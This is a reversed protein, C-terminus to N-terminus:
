TGYLLNGFYLIIFTNAAKFIVGFVLPITLNDDLGLNKSYLETITTALVALLAPIVFIVDGLGNIFYGYGFVIIIASVAFALTGEWSKDKLKHRGWKRGILAALTDSIMLIMLGMGAIIHGFMLAALIASVLMWPAGSLTFPGDTEEPRLTVSFRKLGRQWLINRKYRSYEFIGVAVLAIFFLSIATKLSFILLALPMWLSTLHVAKRLLEQRYSFAQQM